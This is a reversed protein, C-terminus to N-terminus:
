IEPNTITNLEEERQMKLPVGAIEAMQKFLYTVSDDAGEIILTNMYLQNQHLLNLSLKTTIM